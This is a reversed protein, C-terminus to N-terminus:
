DFESDTVTTSYLGNNYTWSENRLYDRHSLLTDYQYVKMAHLDKNVDDFYPGGADEGGHNTELIVATSDRKITKTYDGYSVEYVVTIDADSQNTVQYTYDYPYTCSASFFLLWTSTKPSISIKKM